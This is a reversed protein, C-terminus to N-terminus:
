CVALLAYGDLLKLAHSGSLVAYTGVIIFFWWFIASLCFFSLLFGQAKCLTLSRDTGDDGGCLFYERPLFFGWEMTFTVLLVAVYCFCNTMTLLLARWSVFFLCYDSAPQVLHITPLKLTPEDLDKATM